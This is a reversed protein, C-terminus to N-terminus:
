RLEFVFMEGETTRLTIHTNSNNQKRFASNHLEKAKGMALMEWEVEFIKEGHINEFIVQRGSYILWGEKNLSASKVAKFSPGSWLIKYIKGNADFQKSTKRIPRELLLPEDGNDPYFCGVCIFGGEVQYVEKRPHLGQIRAYGKPVPALAKRKKPPEEDTNLLDEVFLQKITKDDFNGYALVNHHKEELQDISNITIFEAAEFDIMDEYSADQEKLTEQLQEAEPPKGTESNFLLSVNMLVEYLRGQAPKKQRPCWAPVAPMPDNGEIYPAIVKNDHDACVMKFVNEFSDPTYVRETESAPCESCDKIQISPM